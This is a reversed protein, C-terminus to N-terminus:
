SKYWLRRCRRGRGPVSLGLSRNVGEAAGRPVGVGDPLGEVDGFALPSTGDRLPSMLFIRAPSAMWVGASLPVPM